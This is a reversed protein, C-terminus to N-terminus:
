LVPLFLIELLSNFFCGWIKINNLSATRRTFGGMRDNYLNISTFPTSYM